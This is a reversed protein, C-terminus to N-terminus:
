SGGSSTRFWGPFGPSELRQSSPTMLLDVLYEKSIRAGAAGITKECRDTALNFHGCADFQLNQQHSYHGASFCITKAEVKRFLRRAQILVFLEWCAATRKHRMNVTIASLVLM